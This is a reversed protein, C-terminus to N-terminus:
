SNSGYHGQKRREENANIIEGYRTPVSLRHSKSIWLVNDLILKFHRVRAIKDPEKGRGIVKKEQEILSLVSIALTARPKILPTEGLVRDLLQYTLEVKFVKAWLFLYVLVDCLEREMDEEPDEFACLVEGLEGALGLLVFSGDGPDGFSELSDICYSITWHKSNKEKSM